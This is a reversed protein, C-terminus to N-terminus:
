GSRERDLSQSTSGKSLVSFFLLQKATLFWKPQCNTFSCLRNVPLSIFIWSQISLICSMLRNPVTFNLRPKKGEKTSRKHLCSPDGAVLKKGEGLYAMLPCILGLPLSNKNTNNEVQNWSGCVFSSSTLSYPKSLKSSGGLHAWPQEQKEQALSPSRLHCLTSQHQSCQAM